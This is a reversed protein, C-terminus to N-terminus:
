ILGPLKRTRSQPSSEVSKVMKKNTRNRGKVIAVDRKTRLAVQIKELAQFSFGRNLLVNDRKVDAYEREVRWDTPPCTFGRRM